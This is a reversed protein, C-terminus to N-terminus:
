QIEPHQNSKGINQIYEFLQNTPIQSLNIRQKTATSLGLILRRARVADDKKLHKLIVPNVDALQTHIFLSAFLLNTFIDVGTVDQHFVTFIRKVAFFEKCVVTTKNEDISITDPFLDFPFMATAEFLIRGTQNALENLRKQSDEPPLTSPTIQMRQEM